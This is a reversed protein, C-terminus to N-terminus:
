VWKRYPKKSKKIEDNLEKIKPYRMLKRIYQEQYIGAKKAALQISWGNLRQTLWKAINERDQPEVSDLIELFREPGLTRDGQQETSSLDGCSTTFDSKHTPWYYSCFSPEM